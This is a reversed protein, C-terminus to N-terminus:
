HVLEQFDTVWGVVRYASIEEICALFFLGPIPRSALASKSAKNEDNREWVIVTLLMFPNLIPQLPFIVKFLLTQEFPNADLKISQLNQNM